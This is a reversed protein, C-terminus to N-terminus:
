GLTRSATSIRLFQPQTYFKDTDFQNYRAMAVTNKHYVIKMNGHLEINENLDFIVKGTAYDITGPGKLVGASGVITGRGTDHLTFRDTDIFVHFGDPKIPFATIMNGMSDLIPGGENILNGGEDYTPIYEQGLYFEYHGSRKEKQEGDETVTRLPNLTLQQEYRGTLEEKDVPDRIVDGNENTLPTGFGDVINGTDKNYYRRMSYVYHNRIIFLEGTTRDIFKATWEDYKDYIDYVDHADESSEPEVQVGVANRVNRVLYEGSPLGDELLIELHERFYYPTPTAPITNGNMIVINEPDSEDVYYGTDIREYQTWNYIHNNYIELENVRSTPFIDSLGAVDAGDERVIRYGANTYYGDGGPATVCGFGTTYYNTYLNTRDDFIQWKRRVTLGTPSGNTNRRIRSYKIASSNLDVHYILGDSAKINDIVDIYNIAENFGLREPSFTFELNNTIKVMIDHNKDSPIPQRMWLTGEITWDIWDVASELYVQIDYPALKYSSLADVISAKWIESSPEIVNLDSMSEDSEDRYGASRVIYLKIVNALMNESDPDTYIDTALANAVGELRKAAKEFDELVVLTDMTNVYLESAVRAEEPTEPSYGYTSATNTMTVLELAEDIKGVGNMTVLNPRIEHLANDIIEGNSGDSIVYFLKFRTIAYRNKWYDPLQIYPKGSEDFDFEFYKGVETVTNLNDVQQWTTSTFATDDDDILHITTNDVNKDSLYIRNRTVKSAEVNYDYIEHWDTVNSSLPKIRRPTAPTGQILTAAVQSDGGAGAPIEIPSLNTYTIGSATVFSNFRHITISLANPNSFQAECYASRYWKMKYGILRFLQQANKTQLVTKPFVELANNDLNFSLMDGLMAMLKILVIGPDADSQPNYVKTLTPIAAKLEALISSYDRNTYSLNPNNLVEKNSWDM